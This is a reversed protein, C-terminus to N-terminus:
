MLPLIEIFNPEIAFYRGWGCGFVFVFWFFWLWRVSRDVFVASYIFWRILASFSLASRDRLRPPEDLLLASRSADADRASLFDSNCVCSSKSSSSLMAINSEGTCFLSDM